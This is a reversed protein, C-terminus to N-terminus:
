QVQGTEDGNENLLIEEVETYEVIKEEVIGETEEEVIKPKAITERSSLILKEIEEPSLKNNYAIFFHLKKIYNVLEKLKNNKKDITEKADFLLRKLVENQRELKAQLDVVAEYYEKNVKQFDIRALVIEDSGKDMELSDLVSYIEKSSFLDDASTQIWKKGDEDIFEKLNPVPPLKRKVKKM